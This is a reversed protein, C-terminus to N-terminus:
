QLVRRATVRTAPTIEVNKDADLFGDYIARFAARYGRGELGSTMVLDTISMEGTHDAVLRRVVGDADPDPTRRFEHLRAANNAASRTFLRETVLVVDDAFGLPAAAKILVLEERFRLRDARTAPKVAIALKRGDTLTILYDFTHRKLAGKANRYEIAPPQDWVDHIDPRALILYLVRQELKSEFVIRRPHLDAPLQAVTVGRLSAQSRTPIARTSRSTSPPIFGFSTNQM